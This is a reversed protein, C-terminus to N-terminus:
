WLRVNIKTPNITAVKVLKVHKAITVPSEDPLLAGVPRGSYKSLYLSYCGLLSLTQPTMQINGGEDPLISLLEQLEAETFPLRLGSEGLPKHYVQVHRTLIRRLTALADDPLQIVVPRFSNAPQAVPQTLGFALATLTTNM